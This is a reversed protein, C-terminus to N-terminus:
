EFQAASARHGIVNNKDKDIGAINLLEAAPGDRAIIVAIEYVNKLLDAGAGDTNINQERGFALAIWFIIRIQAFKESGRV